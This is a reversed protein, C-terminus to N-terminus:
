RRSQYDDLCLPTLARRKADRSPFEGAREFVQM